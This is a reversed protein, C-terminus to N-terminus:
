ARGGHVKSRAPSNEQYLSKDQNASIISASGARYRTHLTRQHAVGAACSLGNDVRCRNREVSLPIGCKKPTKRTDRRRRTGVRQEENTDRTWVKPNGGARHASYIWLNPRPSLM